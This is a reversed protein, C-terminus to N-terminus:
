VPIISGWRRCSPCQWHLERGTFGCQQCDYVPVNPALRDVIRGLRGSDLDGVEGLLEIAKRLGQLSPNAELLDLLRELATGIGNSRAVIEALVVAARASGYATVLHELYEAFEKRLGLRETCEQMMGLAEPVFAPNQFEISKLTGLAEQYRGGDIRIRSLILSARVCGPDEKLAQALYREAEPPQRKSLADQALECLFHGVIEIKHADNCRNLQNAVAIASEWDQEQQYILLLQQL